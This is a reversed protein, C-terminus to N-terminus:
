RGSIYAHDLDLYQTQPVPANALGQYIPAFRIETFPGTGPIPVGTRNLYQKGDIWVQVAGDPANSASSLQFMLEINHWEGRTITAGTRINGITWGSSNLYLDMNLPGGLQSTHMMMIISGGTWNVYYHKVLGGEFNPSYRVWTSVYVARNPQSGTPFPYRIQAPGTGAALGAPFKYRASAPGSSPASADSLVSLNTSVYRAEVPDWGQAGNVDTTTSALTSFNRNAYLNFGSPAHAAAVGGNSPPQPAPYSTGTTDPLTPSTTTDPQSPVPETPSPQCTEYGPPIYYGAPCATGTDPATTDPPVPAPTSGSSAVNLLVSDAGYGGDGIAVVYTRGAGKGYVVGSSSVTAISKNGSRYIVNVGPLPKGNKRYVTASLKLSDGVVLTASDPSLRTFGQNGNSRAALLAVEAPSLEADRASSLPNAGDSCAAALAAISALALAAARM